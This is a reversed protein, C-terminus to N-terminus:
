AAEQQEIAGALSFALWVEPSLAAGVAAGMKVQADLQPHKDGRAWHRVSWASFGHAAAFAEATQGTSDLHDRLPTKRAMILFTGVDPVILLRNQVTTLNEVGRGSPYM